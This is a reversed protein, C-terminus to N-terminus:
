LSDLFQVTNDIIIDQQEQRSMDAPNDGRQLEEGDGYWGFNTHNGGEIKVWTTDAPLHEESEIIEHPESNGDESGSISMVKIDVDDIRFTETPYAAWLVAGDVKDPTEQVYACTIAGGFSHGGLAWTEIDGYEDIIRDARRMGFVALDFPMSIIVVMYGQAAIDRACPAYSRADVLGGPYFIFGKTPTEGAPQFVHYYDFWEWVFVSQASVDETSELAQLAEPMPQYSFINFADAASFASLLFVLAAIVIHASRRGHM